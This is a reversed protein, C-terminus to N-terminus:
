HEKNIGFSINQYLFDLDFKRKKYKLIIKMKKKKNFPKENLQIKTRTIMM